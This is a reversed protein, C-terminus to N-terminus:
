DERNLTADYWSAPDEVPELHTTVNVPSMEQRMQYEIMELLEHGQQVSWNGPVQIHVSVFRQVGAQRTRLAHYSVGEAQYHDLIARLRSVEEEPLGADLLGNASSRVLKLGTVVIQLAVIMAIVPDLWLWGTLSVLAVGAIAWAYRVVADQDGQEMGQDIALEILKPVSVKAATWVLGAAAGALLRRRNLCLALPHLAHNASRRDSSM